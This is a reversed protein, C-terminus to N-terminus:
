SSLWGVILFTAMTWRPIWLLGEHYRTLGEKGGCLVCRKPLRTESPVCLTVSAAGGSKSV